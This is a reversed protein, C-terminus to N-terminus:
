EKNKQFLWHYFARNILFSYSHIIISYNSNEKDTQLKYGCYLITKKIIRTKNDQNKLASSDQITCCVSYSTYDTIKLTLKKDEQSQSPTHDENKLTLKKDEQSLSPTHDENKLTLKKDEQLLSQIEELCFVLSDYFIYRNKNAFRDGADGEELNEIIEIKDKLEHEKKWEDILKKFSIKRVQFGFIFTVILKYVQILLIVILLIVVGILEYQYSPNLVSQFEDFLSQLKKTLKEDDSKKLAQFTTLSGKHILFVLSEKLNKQVAQEFKSLPKAEQREKIIDLSDQKEKILRLCSLAFSIGGKVLDSKNYFSVDYYPNLQLILDLANTFDKNEIKFSDARLRLLGRIFLTDMKFRKIQILSDNKFKEINEIKEKLKNPLQSLDPMYKLYLKILAIQYKLGVHEPFSFPTKYCFKNFGNDNKLYYEFDSLVHEYDHQEIYSNLKQIIQENPDPLPQNSALIIQNLDHRLSNILVTFNNSLPANEIQNLINRLAQTNRTTQQINRYSVILRIIEPDKGWQQILDELFQQRSTITNLNLSGSISQFFEEIAGNIVDNVYQNMDPIFPECRKRELKISKIITTYGQSTYDKNWQIKFHQTIASKRGDIIKVEESKGQNLYIDYLIANVLLDTSQRNLVQKLGTIADFVLNIHFYCIARHKLAPLYNNDLALADNLNDIALGVQENDQFNQWLHVQAIGVFAEKRRPNDPSLYGLAQRYSNLAQQYNNNVTTKDAALLANEFATNGQEMLSTFQNSQGFTLKTFILLILIIFRM